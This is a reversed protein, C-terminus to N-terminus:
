PAARDAADARQTEALEREIRAQERAAAAHAAV